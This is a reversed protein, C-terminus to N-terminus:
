SLKALYADLLESLPISKERDQIVKVEKLVVKRMSGPSSHHVQDLLNWCDIAELLRSAELLKGGGSQGFEKQHNQYQKVAAEALSRSAYWKRERAGTQSISAPISLRWQLTAKDFVPVLSKYRPMQTQSKYNTKTFVPVFAQNSIFLQSNM